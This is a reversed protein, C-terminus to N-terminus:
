SCPQDYLLGVSRELSFFQWRTLNGSRSSFMVSSVIDSFPLSLETITKPITGLCSLRLLLAALTLLQNNSIHLSHFMGGM